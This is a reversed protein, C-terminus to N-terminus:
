IQKSVDHSQKGQIDESTTNSKSANGRKSKLSIGGKAMKPRSNGDVWLQRKIRPNEILREGIASFAFFFWEGIHFVKRLYFIFYFLNPFNM